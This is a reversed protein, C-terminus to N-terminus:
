ASSATGRELKQKCFQIDNNKAEDKGGFGKSDVMMRSTFRHDQASIGIYCGPPTIKSLIEEPSRTKPERAKQEESPKKAPAAKASAVEMNLPPVPKMGEGGQGASSSSAAGASPPPEAFSSSPAKEPSADPQAKTKLIFKKIKALVSTTGTQHKGRGKGKNKGRGKGRGKSKRRRAEKQDIVEEDAKQKSRKKKQIQEKYKKIETFNAEDEALLDLVEEMDSGLEEEVFTQKMNGKAMAQNEHQGELFHDILFAQLDARKLNKPYAVGCHELLLKMQKVTIQVGALCVAVPITIPEGSKVWVLPGVSPMLLTPSTPVVIWDSLDWIHFWQLLEKDAKMVYVSSGDPKLQVELRWALMGHEAVALAKVLAGTSQQALVTGPSGALITMWAQNLAHPPLDQSWFAFLWETAALIPFLGGASPSPWSNTVGQKAMMQQFELPLKHSRPAMKKLIPQGYAASNAFVKQENTVSVCNVNREELAKSMILQHQIATLGVANARGQRIVDKCKSHAVEVVRSDGLNKAVHLQLSLGDALNNEYAIFLARVFPSKRWVLSDLFPIRGGSAVAAEAAMLIDWEKKVQGVAAAAEMPNDSLTGNYRTPPWLSFVALSQARASLLEELFNAHDLVLSSRDEGPGQHFQPELGKREWCSHRVMDQLEQKWLNQTVSAVNYELVQQPSKVNRARSAHHKWTSRCVTLLMRQIDVNRETIYKPALKWAGKKKKLEALEQRPDKQAMISSVELPQAEEEEDEHQASSCSLVLKTAMLEGSYFTASEFFSFWRMLKVLPGKEGFSRMNALNEFLSQQDAAHQPESIGLERCIAPLLDQFQQSSASHQALFDRLCDQKKHFWRGSGYPGYPLNYVLALELMTKYPFCRAKKAAAKTDNWARHFVDFLCHLLVASKSYQLFNLAAMNTPGQDSISILVPLKALDIAPDVVPMATQTQPNCIYWRGDEGKVRVEGPQLPSLHLGSPVKFDVLTVGINKLAASLARIEIFGELRTLKGNRGQQRLESHLDSVFLRRLPQVLLYSAMDKEVSYVMSVLTDMGGYTSPDWAISLQKVGAFVPAAERDHLVSMLYAEMKMLRCHETVLNAHTRAVRWRHLREKKIRNLLMMRNIHDSSKRAFGKKTKLLPLEQLPKTTLQNAYLELCEGLFFVLNPWVGLGIATWLNQGGMRLSPNSNLYLLFTIIDDLKAYSWPSSLPHKRFAAGPSSLKAWMAQAGPVVEMLTGWDQCLCQPTIALMAVKLSGDPAVATAHPFNPVGGQEHAKPVVISALTLLLGLAKEKNEAKLQRCKVTMGLLALLARSELTHETWPEKGPPKYGKKKYHLQEQPVQCMDMESLIGDMHDALFKGGYSGITLCSQVRSWLWEARGNTNFYARLGDGVNSITAVPFPAKLTDDKAPQSAQAEENEDMDM